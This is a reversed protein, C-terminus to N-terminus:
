WEQSDELRIYNLDEDSLGHWRCGKRSCFFFDILRRMASVNIRVLDSSCKPCKKDEHILSHDCYICKVDKVGSKEPLKISTSHTFVNLYPSLYLIGKSGDDKEIKFIIKNETILSMKCHPCYSNLFSGSELLEKDGLPEVKAKRPFLNHADHAAHHQVEYENYFHALATSLDEFEILHKRCGARSCISVKGGDELHFDVLPASCVDCLDPSKLEHLCSPCKFEAISGSEIDLMSDLNYSGYISSLWIYGEKGGIKLYLKVSAVNDVLHEHDMLSHGCHVCKLNLSVFSLM